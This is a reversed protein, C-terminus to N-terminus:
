ARVVEAVPKGDVRSASTHILEVCGEAEERSFHWADCKNGTFRQLGRADTLFGARWVHVLYEGGNGIQEPIGTSQTETEEILPLVEAWDEATKDNSNRQWTGSNM